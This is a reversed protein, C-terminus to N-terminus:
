LLICLQSNMLLLLLFVFLILRPTQKPNQTSEGDDQEPDQESQILSSSLTLVLSPVFNMLALASEIQPITKAASPVFAACHDLTNHIFQLIPKVNDRFASEIALPFTTNTSIGRFIEAVESAIESLPIKKKRKASSFETSWWGLLSTCVVRSSFWHIGGTVFRVGWRVFPIESLLCPWLKSFLPRLEAQHGKMFHLRKRARRINDDMDADDEFTVRRRHSPSEAAHSPTPPNDEGLIDRVPNPQDEDEESEEHGACLRESALSPGSMGVALSMSNTWLFAYAYTYLGYVKTADAQRMPPEPLSEIKQILMKCSSTLLDLSMKESLFHALEQLCYSWLLTKGDNEALEAFTM